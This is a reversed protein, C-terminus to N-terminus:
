QVRGTAMQGCLHFVCCKLDNSNEHASGDAAAAQSGYYLRGTPDLPLGIIKLFLDALIIGVSDARGAVSHQRAILTLELDALGTLRKQILHVEGSISNCDHNLCSSSLQLLLSSPRLRGAVLRHLTSACGAM